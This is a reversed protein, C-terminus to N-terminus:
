GTPPHRELADALDTASTVVVGATDPGPHYRTAVFALESPPSDPSPLQYEFRVMAGGDLTVTAPVTDPEPTALAAAAHRM